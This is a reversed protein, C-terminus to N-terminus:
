GVFSLVLDFWSKWQKRKQLSLQNINTSKDKKAQRAAPSSPAGSWEYISNGNMQQNNENWEVVWCVWEKLKKMVNEKKDKNSQIENSEEQNPKDEKPPAMPPGAAVLGGM